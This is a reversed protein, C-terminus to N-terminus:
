RFRKEGSLASAFSVAEALSNPSRSNTLCYLNHDPQSVIVALKRGAYEALGACSEAVLKIAVWKKFLSIGVVLACRDQECELVQWEPGSELVSLMRSGDPLVYGIPLWADVIM